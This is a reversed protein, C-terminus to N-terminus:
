PSGAIAAGSAPMAIIVAGDGVMVTIAAGILGAGAMAIIAEGLLSAGAMATAPLPATLSRRELTALAEIM